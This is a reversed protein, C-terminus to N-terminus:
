SLGPAAALWAALREAAQARHDPLREAFLCAWVVVHIRRLALWPALDGTDGYAAMVAPGDIRSSGAVAALDWQIPGACADEFDCWAWGGPTNLLNGPHPDGHLARVPGAPMPLLADFGRRLAALQAAPLSGRQLFREIDLLPTGLFPLEGDYTALAAHLDALLVAMQAPSPVAPTSDVYEWCSLPVGDCLLVGPPLLDSQRVVALGAARVHAAVSIERALWEGPERVTRTTGAVKVVVPAPWLRIVVNAGDALVIPEVGGLDHEAALSLAAAVAAARVPEPSPQSPM